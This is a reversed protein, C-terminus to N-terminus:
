MEGSEKLFYKAHFGYQRDISMRGLGRPLSARAVLLVYL